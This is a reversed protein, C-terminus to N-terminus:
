LVTRDTALDTPSRAECTRTKPSSSGKSDRVAVFRADGGDTGGDKTLAGDWCCCEGDERDCRAESPRRRGFCAAGTAGDPRDNRDALAAPCDLPLRVNPLGARAVDSPDAFRPRAPSAAASLLSCGDDSLEAEGVSAAGRSGSGPRRGQLWGAPSAAAESSATAALLGLCCRAAAATGACDALGSRVAIGGGGGGRM